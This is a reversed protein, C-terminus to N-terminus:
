THVSEGEAFAERARARVQVFRHRLARRVADIADASDIKSLAGAAAEALYADHTSYLTDILAPVAKKERREGLVQAALVPTTPVRHRLAAILQDVYDHQSKWEAIDAKCQPCVRASEAVQAWCKPCFFTM